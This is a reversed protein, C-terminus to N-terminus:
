FPLQHARHGKIVSEPEVPGWKIFHDTSDYRRFPTNTRYWNPKQADVITVDFFERWNEGVLYNMGANVFKFGSNTLLFMKKGGDRWRQLAAPLHPVPSQYIQPNEAVTKHMTGSLHVTAIATRVDKHLNFPVFPIDSDIAMQIVDALLCAEAMAFLDHIPMCHEKMYNKPLHLSGGYM